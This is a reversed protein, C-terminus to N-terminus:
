QEFLKIIDKVVPKIKYKRDILLPYNTRGEIPWDNLWSDQDSVGWLSVRNINDAYKKYLRFFSLYRENFEEEVEKPLGKPYPNYRAESEFSESVEAGGFGEPNPLVNIDMESIIVKVGEHIFAKMSEEYDTLDPYHLGNHSQMGVADIRCGAGKLRQILKVVTARKEPKNMSFDNYYLEADPDAEHAFKFALEFYEPGIARYWPSERFSGDDLIAENIVDWGKIKGKYRGVVTHIYTRMREIMEERNPLEGHKNKFMWPATQSHWVLVHGTVKMGNDLGFQVFKDADEWFFEGEKPSINEPKMCNEAVVANFQTKIVDVAKPENGNVQEVNVAAGVLFHKGLTEKLSQSRAPSMALLILYGLVIYKKM